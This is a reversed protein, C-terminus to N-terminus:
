RYARLFQGEHAGVSLRAAEAAWSNLRDLSPDLWQKGCVLCAWVYTLYYIPEAGVQVSQTRVSRSSQGACAPCVPGQKHNNMM